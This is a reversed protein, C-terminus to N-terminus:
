PHPPFSGSDRQEQHRAIMYAAPMEFSTPDSDENDLSVPMVVDYPFAILRIESWRDRPIHRLPVAHKLIQFLPEWDEAPAQERDFPDLGADIDARVVLDTAERAMLFAHQM